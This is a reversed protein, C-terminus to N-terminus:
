KVFRAVHKHGQGNRVSVTYLGEPWSAAQLQLVQEEGTYEMQERHVLRGDVGHIIVSLQGPEMGNVRINLLDAVPNPFLQLSAPEMVPEVRNTALQYTETRTNLYIDEYLIELQGATVQLDGLPLRIDDFGGIVYKGLPQGDVTFSVRALKMSNGLDVCLTDDHISYEDAVYPLCTFQEFMSEIGDRGDPLDYVQRLDEVQEGMVRIRAADAIGFGDNHLLVLHNCKRPDHSMILGEIADIAIPDRSALVLRMNMQNGKYDGSGGPGNQLGQLGDMIVFDVPRGAYSDHIFRHLNTITHDVGGNRNLPSKDEPGLGYLKGPTCGIGVNKVAGSIGTRFHNKLVPISIVVDAETYQRHYYFASSSNIKLEEPYVGLGEDLFVSDVWPGKFDYWDGTEEMAMLSDVYQMGSYGLVDMIALSGPTYSSGEMVLIRGSPNIERVLKAAIEVVRPDTTKGNCEVEEAPNTGVLNPKLVVVDGDEVVGELGGTMQVAERILAELEEYTIDYCSERDSKVIAVTTSLEDVVDEEATLMIVPESEQAGARLSEPNVLLVSALTLGTACVVLVLGAVVKSERFFMRARRFLTAGAAMGTLWLVFASAVPFAARQCPYAARSPKPIVRILFWTLALVGSIIFTIRFILNKHKQHEPKM